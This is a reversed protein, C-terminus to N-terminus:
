ERIDAPLILVAVVLEIEVGIDRGTVGVNMGTGELLMWDPNFREDVVDVFILREERPDLANNGSANQMSVGELGDDEIAGLLLTPSL